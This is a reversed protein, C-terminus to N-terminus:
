RWDSRHRHLIRWVRTGLGAVLAMGLGAPRGSLPEPRSFMWISILALGFGALQLESPLGVSLATSIVPVAAALVASVPAVIGMRGITFGRLLSAFGVLVFLGAIAGWMLDAVPPLKEPRVLAVIVVAFLAITYSVLMTHFTGIRRAALGGTFDGSGGPQQPWSRL